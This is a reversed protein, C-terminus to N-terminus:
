QVITMLRDKLLAKRKTIFEKFDKIFKKMIQEEFYHLHIGYM